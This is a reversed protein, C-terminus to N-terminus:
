ATLRNWDSARCAWLEVGYTAQSGAWVQSNWNSKSSKRCHGSLVSSNTFYRMKKHAVIKSCNNESYLRSWMQKVNAKVQNWVGLLGVMGQPSPLLMLQLPRMWISKVIRRSVFLWLLKVLCSLLARRFVHITVYVCTYKPRSLWLDCDGSNQRLKPLGTCM